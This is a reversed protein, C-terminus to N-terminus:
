AQISPGTEEDAPTSVLLPLFSSHDGLCEIHRLLVFSVFTGAYYSYNTCPGPLDFFIVILKPGVVWLYASDCSTHTHAELSLNKYLYGYLCVRFNRGCFYFQLYQKTINREYFM